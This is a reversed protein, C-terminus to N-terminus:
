KMGTSGEGCRVSTSTAKKRYEKQTTIIADSM